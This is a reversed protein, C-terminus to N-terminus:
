WRDSGSEVWQSHVLVMIIIIIIIIIIIVIVGFLYLFQANAITRSCPCRKMLADQGNSWANVCVENTAIKKCCKMM